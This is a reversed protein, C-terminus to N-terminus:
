SPRPMPKRLGPRSLAITARTWFKCKSNTVLASYFRRRRKRGIGNLILAFEDGGMRIALDCSRTETRLIRALLKLIHDGAQHGFRDNVAKFGDCDIMVVTFDNSLKRKKLMGLEELSRRNLLGTLPDQLAMRRLHLVPREVQAVMLVLGVLPVCSLVGILVLNVHTNHNLSAVACCATAAFAALFGAVKGAFRAAFWVPIAFLLAAEPGYGLRLQLAFISISLGVAVALAPVESQSSWRKLQFVFKGM